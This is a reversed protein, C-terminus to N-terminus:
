TTACTAPTRTSRRRACRRSSRTSGSPSSTASTQHSPEVYEGRDLKSLLDVRAREADRKTRFGSHWKQRRRGTLPDPDLEIKVYWRDGKKVVSGRMTLGGRDSASRSRPRDDLTTSRRGTTRSRQRPSGARHTPPCTTAKQYCTSLRTPIPRAFSPSASRPSSSSSPSCAAGDPQHVDRRLWRRTGSDGAPSTPALRDTESGAGKSGDFAATVADATEDPRDHHLEAIGIASRHRRRPTGVTSRRRPRCRAPRVATTSDVLEVLTATGPPPLFFCVIPVSFVAALLYSSTPTSAGGGTATTAEEM